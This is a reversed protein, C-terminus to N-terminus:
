SLTTLAVVAVALGLRVRWTTIRTSLLLITGILLFSAIGSPRHARGHDCDTGAVNFLLTDIGLGVQTLHRLFRQMCAVLAALGTTLARWGGESWAHLALALGSAIACAATNPFMSIGDNKWDTLGQINTIWGVITVLGGATV